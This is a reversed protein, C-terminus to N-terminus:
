APALAYSPLNKTRPRARRAALVAVLGLLLDLVIALLAILFAGAFMQPYNSTRQGSILLRGLGGGAVFAAVTATAVV